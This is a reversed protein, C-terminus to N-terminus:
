PTLETTKQQDKKDVKSSDSSSPQYTFTGSQILAVVKEVFQNSVLDTIEHGETQLQDIEIVPLEYQKVDKEDIPTHFTHCHEAGVDYFLYYHYQPHDTLEIDGFWIERDEDYDYYCNEWVFQGLYKNYEKEYDYIRRREYGYLEKHICVPDLVTLLIEKKRYYDEKKARTRDENGYRDYYFRNRQRIYRYEREKDRYNKARKNCSYLCDILM